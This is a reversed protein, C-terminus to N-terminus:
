KTVPQGHALLKGRHGLLGFIDQPTNFFYLRTTLPLSGRGRSQGPSAVDPISHGTRLEETWFPLFRGCLTWKLALPIIRTRYCRRYLSLSRPSKLKSFVSIFDGQQKYIYLTCYDLWPPWFIWHWAAVSLFCRASVTLCSTGVFVLFVKSHPHCQFMNCPSTTSDGKTSINM